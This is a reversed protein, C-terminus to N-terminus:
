QGATPVTGNSPGATGYPAVAFVNSLWGATGYTVAPLAAGPGIHTVATYWSGASSGNGATIAPPTDDPPEAAAVATRCTM